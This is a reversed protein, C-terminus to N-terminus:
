IKNLKAYNGHYKKAANNYANIAELETNFMGLHYRIKDKRILARWKGSKSIFYVGKYSNTGKLKGRNACNGSRTSLRLNNIRNDLTNGNIHDVEMASFGMLYRHMAASHRKRSLTFNRFVYVQNNKSVNAFWDFSNLFDYLEPDVKTKFGKTIKILKYTGFQDKYIKSM